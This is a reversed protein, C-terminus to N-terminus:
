FRLGKSALIGLYQEQSLPCNVLDVVQSNTNLKLERKVVGILDNGYEKIKAGRSIPVSIGTRKGNVCLRLKEHPQRGGPTHEFGKQQLGRVLDKKPITSM